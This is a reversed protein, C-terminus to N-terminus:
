ESLDVKGRQLAALFHSDLNETWANVLHYLGIQVDQLFQGCQCLLAGIPTLVVTDHGQCLFESVCQARFLVILLLAVVYIAVSLHKSTLAVDAFEAGSQVAVQCAQKALELLESM